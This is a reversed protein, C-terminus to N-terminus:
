PGEAPCDTHLLDALDPPVSVYHFADMWLGLLKSQLGSDTSHTVSDSSQLCGSMWPKRMAGWDGSFHLSAYKEAQLEVADVNRTFKNYADPLESKWCGVDEDDERECAPFAQNLFFQIGGFGANQPAQRLLRRLQQFKSEAPESIFMGGNFQAALGADKRASLEAYDELVSDHSKLAIMDADMYLVKKYPLQWSRLQLTVCDAGARTISAHPTVPEEVYVKDFVHALLRQYRNSLDSTIMVVLNHRSGAKKLSAALALAGPAWTADCFHTAIALDTTRSESDAVLRLRFQDTDSAEATVDRHEDHARRMYTQFVPRSIPVTSGASNVELREHFLDVASVLLELQWIM